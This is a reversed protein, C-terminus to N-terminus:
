RKRRCTRKHEKHWHVQQCEVSCYSTNWCCHYIAECECNYCWQKKKCESIETSHQETLKCIEKEHTLQLQQELERRERRVKELTTALERQREAELEQHLKDSFEKLARSKDEKHEAELRTQLEKLLREYRPGCDCPKPTSDSKEEEPSSGSKADKSNNEQLENTTQIAVSVHQVSVDQSSSTVQDHDESVAEQLVNGKPSSSTPSEQYFVKNKKVPGTALKKAAPVQKKPESASSKRKRTSKPKDNAQVDNEASITHVNSEATVTLDKKQNQQVLNQHHKLEKFARQFSPTMKVNLKKLSADIPQVYDEEILARQHFAGFFRVDYMGDEKKIVKAPWYPFGRLKAYVLEHPIECPQCFWFPDNKMNSMRYCNRCQMIELLDYECDGLMQRAMETIRSTVGFYLVVNHVIQLADTYFESLSTYENSKMKEEMAVLDMPKSILFDHRWREEDPHPIRHLEKTKEKLRICTFGLLINLETKKLNLSFKEPIEKCVPCIYSDPINKSLTQQATTLCQLHYVRHCKTCLVVEGGSHCEFCYWDHGDQEPIKDPVKHGDQEIGVKSGKCGKHRKVLVLGDEIALELQKSFDAPELNYVRRMYVQLRERNPIQKQQRIYAIADWLHLVTQPCSIRRSVAMM